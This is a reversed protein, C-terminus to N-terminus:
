ILYYVKVESANYASNLNVTNQSLVTASVTVTPATGEKAGGLSAGLVQATDTLLDPLGILDGMGVIFTDADDAITWGVSTVSTVTKFARTTAYETGSATPTLIESIANGALDTGAIVVTGFTDATGANTRKITVNRAGVDPATHLLTYAGLKMVGTFYYDDDAVAPSGPTYMVPSLLKTRAGPVDTQALRQRNTNFPFFSM